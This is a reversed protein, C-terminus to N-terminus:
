GVISSCFPRSFSWAAFARATADTIQAAPMRVPMMPPVFIFLQLSQPRYRADLAPQPAGRLKSWRSVKTILVGDEHSAPASLGADNVIQHIEGPMMTFAMGPVARWRHEDIAM